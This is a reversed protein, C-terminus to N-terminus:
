CYLVQVVKGPSSSESMLQPGSLCKLLIDSRDGSEWRRKAEGINPGTGSEGRRKGRAAYRPEKRGHYRGPPPSEGKYSLPSPSRFAPPASLAVPASLPVPGINNFQAAGGVDSRDEGPRPM